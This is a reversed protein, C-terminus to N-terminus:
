GTEKSNVFIYGKGRVTILHQYPMEDGIIKRIKMIKNDVTRDFGDFSRGYLQTSIQDRSLISDVNSALFHFLTYESDSLGLPIGDQSAQRTSSNFSFPGVRIVHGNQQKNESEEALRVLKRFRALIIRPNVPKHIFDDAGMELLTIEDIDDHSATLVILKGNYRNQLSRCIEFGDKNPLMLDLLVFDPQLQLVHALGSVGDNQISVIFGHKEFFHRLLEALGLDDEIIVLSRSSM